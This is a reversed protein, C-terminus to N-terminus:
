GELHPLVGLHTGTRRPYIGLRLRRFRVFTHV